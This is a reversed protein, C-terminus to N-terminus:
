DRLDPDSALEVVARNPEVPGELAAFFKDWAEPSITLRRQEVLVEEAAATAAQLVFETVTAHRVQAAQRILVAQPAAVRMHFREEKRETPVAAVEQAM